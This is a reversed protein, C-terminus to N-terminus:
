PKRTKQKLLGQMEYVIDRGKLTDDTKNEPDAEFHARMRDSMEILKLFREEGLKRRILRLGENLQYFVTDINQYPFYGTKDVFTPSSLVVLALLDIIEGVGEPVYLNAPRM